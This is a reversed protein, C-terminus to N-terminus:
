TVCHAFAALSDANNEPDEVEQLYRILGHAFFLSRDISGSDKTHLKQHSIEHLLVWDIERAAHRDSVTERSLHVNSRVNGRGLVLGSGGGIVRSGCLNVIVLGRLGDAIAKYQWFLAAKQTRSPGRPGFSFIEIGAKIMAPNWDRTVLKATKAARHQANIVGRRVAEVEATTIPKEDLNQGLWLAGGPLGGGYLLPWEKEGLAAVEDDPLRPVIVPPSPRLSAVFKKSNPATDRRGLEPVLSNRLVANWIEPGDVCPASAIGQGSGRTGMPTVARNTAASTV